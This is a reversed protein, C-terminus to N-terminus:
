KPIKILGIQDLLKVLRYKKLYEFKYQFSKIRKNELRLHLLEKTDEIILPYQSTLVMNKEANIQNLYSKQSSIGDFYFTSIVEPIHTYSCNYICIANMFWKWDSVIKLNEDYLGCKKFATRKIFTAPHPLSSEYFYSFSLVLPYVFKDLLSHGIVNLDSYVVEKQGLYESGTALSNENFFHDGSNIFILYEGTAALIGKNMANYIGKDPESVWYTIKDAYQELLEKSGDNSGGDIIIYEFDTYDQSIVSDLTKKLGEKNNYSITIVSIKPNM